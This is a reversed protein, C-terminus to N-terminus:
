VSLSDPEQNFGERFSPTDVPHGAARQVARLIRDYIGCRCLNNAIAARIEADTPDPNRDLLAKSAMIMGSVCFGCQVAHEEMFAKQLPHLNGPTGLGELTTIERGQVSRVSLRCSPVAQGDILITCAGCQELGCAFKAAKLGLDNRLVYLLPTEPDVQVQHMQGNVKLHIERVM